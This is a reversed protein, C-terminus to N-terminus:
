ARRRASSLSYWALALLSAGLVVKLTSIPQGRYLAQGLDIALLLAVVTCCLATIRRERTAIVTMRTGTLPNPSTPSLIRAGSELLLIM